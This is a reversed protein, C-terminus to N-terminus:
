VEVGIYIYFSINVVLYVVVIQATNYENVMASSTVTMRRLPLLLFAFTASTTSIYDPVYKKVNLVQLM